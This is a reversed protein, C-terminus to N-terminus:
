QTVTLTLTVETKCGEELKEQCQNEQGQALNQMGALPNTATARNHTHHSPAADAHFVIRPSSLTLQTFNGQTKWVGEHVRTVEFGEERM